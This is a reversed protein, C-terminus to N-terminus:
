IYIQSRGHEYFSTKDFPWVPRWRGCTCTHSRQRASRNKLVTRRMAVAIGLDLDFRLTANSLDRHPAGEHVKLDALPGRCVATPMSRSIFFFGGHACVKARHRILRQMNLVACCVDCSVRMMYTIYTVYTIYTIYTLVSIYPRRHTSGTALMDLCIGLRRIVHRLLDRLVHRLVHKYFAHKLGHESVHGFVHRVLHRLM